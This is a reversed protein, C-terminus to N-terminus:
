SRIIRGGTLLLGRLVRLVQAPLNGSRQPQVIGLEIDGVKIKSFNQLKSEKLIDSGLLLLAYECVADRVPKPIENSSYVNGYEDSFSVTEDWLAGSRPWKLAQSISARIGVFEEEDIRRSATVLAADKSADTASTWNTAYLRDAFYDDAQQRTVFSNSDAGGITADLAM